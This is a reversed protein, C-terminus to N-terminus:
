PGRKGFLEPGAKILIEVPEFPARITVLRAALIFRPHGPRGALAAPDRLSLFGRWAREKGDPRGPGASDRPWQPAAGEM